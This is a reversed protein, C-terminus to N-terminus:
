YSEHKHPGGAFTVQFWARTDEMPGAAMAVDRDARQVQLRLRVFESQWWTVYGTWARSGMGPEFPVDPDIEAHDSILEADDYRLGAYWNRAMQWQLYTYWANSGLISGDEEEFLTRIFEGRLELGRYKGKGEPEWLFNFDVSGVRTDRDGDENNPAAVGNFGLEFYSQQGLDFFGTHRLLFAPDGFHAGAFATGNDGNTIELTLGNSSAWIGPLQFDIGVGLGNLGEHGFVTQLAFPSDVSPLGHRHWRNLTGFQQRFKGLRIRSNFPLGIWELYAEEVNVSIPEGHGHGHEDPDEGDEGFELETPEQHGVLYAKFRTYPDLPAQLSLEAGRLFFEDRQDGDAWDYSIDGLFSIEPNMASLNRQGSTGPEPGTDEPPQPGAAERADELLDQLEAAEDQQDRNELAAIRRQLEEIMEKLQRIEEDREDDSAGAAVPSLVLVLLMLAALTRATGVSNFITM